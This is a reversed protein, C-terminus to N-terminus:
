RAVLASIRHFFPRHPTSGLSIGDFLGMGLTPLIAQILTVEERKRVDIHVHLDGDFDFGIDAGPPCAERLLVLIRNLEDTVAHSSIPVPLREVTGTMVGLPKSM